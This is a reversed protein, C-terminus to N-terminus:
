MLRIRSKGIVIRHEFGLSVLSDGLEHLLVPDHPDAVPSRYAGLCDCGVEFLDALPEAM